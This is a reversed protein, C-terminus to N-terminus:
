LPQRGAFGAEVDHWWEIQDEGNLWCLYVVRGERLHPFDCLGRELDKIEIGLSVVSQVHEMLSILSRTYHAGGQIGGGASAVESAKQAQPAFQQLVEREHRIKRFTRGLEPILANAEALTFLKM